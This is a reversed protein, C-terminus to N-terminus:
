KLITRARRVELYESVQDLSLARIISFVTTNCYRLRTKPDLYKSEFGSFDCYKKTPYLSPPARISMVVFISM